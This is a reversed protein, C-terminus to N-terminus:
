RWIRAWSGGGDLADPHFPHCLTHDYRARDNAGGRDRLPAAGGGAAAAGGARRARLSPLLCAVQGGPRQGGGGHAAGGEM